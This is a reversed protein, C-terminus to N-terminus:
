FFQQCFLPVECNLDSRVSGSFRWREGTGWRDFNAEKEGFILAIAKCKEEFVERFDFEM